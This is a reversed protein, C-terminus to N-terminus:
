SLTGREIVINGWQDLSASYSPPVVTVAAEEEIVLPGEGVSGLSLSARQLVPTECRGFEDFDVLRSATADATDAFLQASMHPTTEHAPVFATLYCTVYQVPHNGLRFTYTREHSNHFREEVEKVAEVTPSEALIPVKVTHEQGLYRMDAFRVFRLAAEDIGEAAFHEVAQTHLDRWTDALAPASDASSQMVQTRVWDAKLDTTLMGWASFHAPAIPIIIRGIELQSAVFAAHMPGGGGFAVIAFERPDYGRRVSVLKIANVLNANALRIVGRAAAEITVDLRSAITQMATRARALSIPLDGGLLYSPNMRGVVVNADTVTPDSGGNPYCAPGPVAGASRPGIRLAGVDNFWAISGGGAGIEVIDVAPVKVPHGATEPTRDIYYDTTTKVDGDEILSSKATTGGIDLTIINRQGILHGVAAAGMVGGVPGSEILTIPTRRAQAFSATGGNSQMVRLSATVGRVRLDDELRGIYLGVVDQVYANLVATSTREYERWERTVTHSMTIFLDPCADALLRACLEENAPNAYAHLFCIAVNSVGHQRLSGVIPELDSAVLPVLINGEYDVRETVEFRLYREVYPEPKRYRLNYLDPRNSRGIDLVDRFGKTTILATPSGKRETLANIVITSGHVFQEVQEAADADPLAKDLAHNVGDAFSAPTTPTKALGVEGGGNIYVLDTFTGGIDTAVRM